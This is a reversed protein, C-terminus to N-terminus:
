ICVRQLKVRGGKKGKRGTATNLTGDHLNVWCAHGGFLCVHEAEPVGGSVPDPHGQLVGDCQHSLSHAGKTITQNAPYTIAAHNDSQLVWQSTTTWGAQTFSLLQRFEPLKSNRM